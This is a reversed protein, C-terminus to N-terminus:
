YGRFPCEDGALGFYGRNRLNNQLERFKSTKAKKEFLIDIELYSLGFTEPLRWYCWVFCLFTTGAFFFCSKGKWNWSDPSLMHPTMWNILVGALNYAVRALVTTKVRLRTSPIEAVLVYCIPGITMDYVFTLFLLLSGLTWLQGRSTSAAGVSGAALLTLTLVLLGALYLTRRGVRTMLFWSIVGGAIALGFTGVTLSFAKSTDFGAQQYFYAAWGMLSTGCVQQTVWVLCTIETRRLDARKFCDLYSIAGGGTLHKEVENTHTLMAATADVSVSGRRTLRLLSKRAEQPQDHRILWWPSEPALVVGILVPIGIAWQLAFPIRFSLTSDNNAFARTVGTALLQGLVWCMNIYSLLYARLAVPMVETAYNITLTQFVGWPIGCLIQGALLMQLNVAFFPIFITIFLFVLAATITIRYGVRDALLGNLLLGVIEGAEAATTFGFQWRAPIEYDGDGTPVGYHRRFAPLTFFSLILLTDFGEMILTSSVVVSWAMAKPYLRCGDLFTIGREAKTAARAGSDLRRLGPIVASLGYFLDSDSSHATSAVLGNSSDGTTCPWVDYFESTPKSASTVPEFHDSGSGKVDLTSPAM